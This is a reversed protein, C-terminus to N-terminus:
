LIDYKILIQFYNGRIEEVIQEGLSLDAKHKSVCTRCVAKFLVLFMIIKDDQDNKNM